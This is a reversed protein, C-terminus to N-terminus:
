KEPRHADVDRYVVWIEKGRRVLYLGAGRSEAMSMSSFLSSFYVKEIEGAAPLAYPGIPGFGECVEPSVEEWQEDKQYSKVVMDAGQSSRGLYYSDSNWDDGEKYLTQCYLNSELISKNQWISIPALFTLAALCLLVIYYLLDSKWSFRPIGKMGMKKAKKGTGQMGRLVRTGIPLGIAAGWVIGSSGEGVIMVLAVVFAMALVLFVTSATRWMVERGTIARGRWQGGASYHRIGNWCDWFTTGVWSIGFLLLMLEEAGSMIAFDGVVRGRIGAYLITIVVINYIGRLLEEKKAFTRLKEGKIDEDTHIPVTKEGDVARFLKGRDFQWVIEWGAEEYFNLYSLLDEEAEMTGSLRYYDWDYKAKASETRRFEAVLGWFRMQSFRWGRDEMYEMYAPMDPITLAPWIRWTKKRM